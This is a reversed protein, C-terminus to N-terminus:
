LALVFTNYVDLFLEDKGLYHSYLSSKTIGVAKAIDSISTGYYGKKAFLSLAEKKIREKTSIIIETGGLFNHNVPLRKDLRVIPRKITVHLWKKTM